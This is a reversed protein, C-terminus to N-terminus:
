KVSTYKNVYFPCNACGISCLSLIFDKNDLKLIEDDNLKVYSWDKQEGNYGCTIGLISDNLSNYNISELKIVKDQKKLTVINKITKYRIRNKSVKELVICM